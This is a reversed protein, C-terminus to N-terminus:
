KSKKSKKMTLALVVLVGAAVAMEVSIIVILAIVGGNGGDTEVPVPVQAASVSQKAAELKSGIDGQAAADIEEIGAKVSADDLSVGKSVAYLQLESKANQRAEALAAAAEAEARQQEQAEADQQAQAAVADVAAKAATLVSEISASDAAGLDTVGETVSADDLSVGKSAAYLRLDNQADSRAQALAANQGQTEADQQAQAAVADVAAKAAALVSELTAADAAELNEMGETVSADDLSVGKSAAYLRLDNQADSRAQALAANQGQTEADQQAQAAVADVAAKAAALVSELTAADAAGLNEMGETVSADDLSVGKSAAYLRLEGIANAKAQALAANQEQTEANQQAQAAVADVAAKAATLVSELTSSDAGEISQIGETVSTDTLSVGKSAAYIQLESVADKISQALEAAADAARQEEEESVTLVANMARQATYAIWRADQMSMEGLEVPHNELDTGLANAADTYLKDIAAQAAASYHFRNLLEAKAAELEQLLVANYVSIEQIDYEDKESNYIYCYGNSIKSEDFVNVSGKSKGAIIKDDAAINELAKKLMSGSATRVIVYVTSDAEPEGIETDFWEPKVEQQEFDLTFEGEDETTPATVEPAMEHEGYLFNNVAGATGQAQINTGAGKIEIKKDATGADAGGVLYTDEDVVECSELSLSKGVLQGMVAGVYKSTCEETNLESVTGNKVTVSAETFGVIGGMKWNGQLKVQDITINELCLNSWTQGIYGGGMISGSNPAQAITVNQVTINQAPNKDDNAHNGQAIVGGVFVWGKETNYEDFYGIGRGGTFVCDSVTINSIKAGGDTRGFLGANIETVRIGKVTKEGGDFTGRFGYKQTGAPLFLKSGDERPQINAVTAIATNEPGFDLDATLKVSKKDFNDAGSSVYIAFYNWEDTTSIEFADKVMNEQYWKQAQANPAIKVPYLTAEDYEEGDTIYAYYFPIAFYNALTEVQDGRFSGGTIDLTADAGEAVAFKCNYEGSLITLTGGQVTVECAEEKGTVAANRMTVNGDVTLNGEVTGNRLEANGCLKLSGGEGITLTYRQNVDLDLAIGDLVVEETITVNRLLTIAGNPTAATIADQIDAYGTGNVYYKDDAKVNAFIYKGNDAVCGLGEFSSSLTGWDDSEADMFNWSFVSTHGGRIYESIDFKFKEAKSKVTGDNNPQRFNFNSQYHHGDLWAVFIPSATPDEHAEETGYCIESLISGGKITVITGEVANIKELRDSSTSSGIHFVSASRAQSGNGNNMPDRYTNENPLYGTQRLTGSELVFRANLNTIDVCVGGTSSPAQGSPLVFNIEGTTGSDKVTMTIEKSGDLLIAQKNETHTLKHGNLDLTINGELADSGLSMQEITADQKVTITRDGSLTKAYKWAAEFNSFSAESEGAAVTAVLIDTDIEDVVYYDDGTLGGADKGADFKRMWLGDTCYSSYDVSWYGGSINVSNEFTEDIAVSGYNIYDFGSDWTPIQVSVKSELTINESRNQSGIFNGGEILVNCGRYDSYAELYTGVKEQIEQKLAPLNEPAFTKREANAEPIQWSYTNATFISRSSTSDTNRLFTGGKITLDSDILNIFAGNRPGNLVGDLITVSPKNATWTEAYDGDDVDSKSPAASSQILTYSLWSEYSYDPNLRSNNTMNVSTTLKGYNYILIDNTADNAIAGGGKTDILELTGEYMNNIVFQGNSRSLTHGNLDLTIDRGGTIRLGWEENGVKVNGLAINDTLRIKKNVGPTAALVAEKLAQETGVQTYEEEATAPLARVGIVVFLAFLLGLIGVAWKKWSMTRM